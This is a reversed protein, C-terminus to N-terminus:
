APVQPAAGVSETLSLSAPLTEHQTELRGDLQSFLMSAATSGLTLYDCQITSLRPRTYNCLTIGDFGAVSVDDPVDLGLRDMEALGGLAMIDNAYFIATPRTTRSLLDRTARAGGDPTFGGSLTHFPTLGHKALAAALVTARHQSNRHDPIGSVHAIATHGRTVLHDVLATIAHESSIDISSFREDVSPGGVVVAKARLHWLLDLRSDDVRLDALVFGDVKREAVMDRYTKEEEAETRAFRIMLSYDREVAASEVGALFSGFFPDTELIEPRRLVIFGLVRTPAGNVARAAANPRWGLEDAAARVRAVTDPHLREGGNMSRSVAGKSVGALKAVDTITVRAPRDNM